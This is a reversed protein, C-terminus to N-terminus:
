NGNITALATEIDGVLTDVYEKTAADHDATPTDVNIIRRYSPGWSTGGDGVSVVNSASATANMGIAISGSGSAYAGDGLAIARNGTAHCAGYGIAVSGVGTAECKQNWVPSGPGIAISGTEAYAGKRNSGFCIALSGYKAEADAGIAINEKSTESGSPFIMQSTAVQSMVDTQSTGTTQVTTIAGADGKEGQPITFDFVAASSTGSNTVTASTGPQGTTVTGVAITAAQGAPGTAGTAGTDGKPGQPGTAGAPGQPGTAGTNGKDGKEGQLGRPGQPGTPGTAGKDGKPGQEGTEGKDGKPGQPGQPGMPGQEGRDGKDGKLGGAGQVIIPQSGLGRTYEPM